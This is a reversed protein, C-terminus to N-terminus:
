SKVMTLSAVSYDYVQPGTYHWDAQGFMRFGLEWLGGRLGRLTEVNYIRERMWHFHATDPGECDWYDTTLVLLGGPRLLTHLAKLFPRVQVVHEVVSICTLIDFAETFRPAAHEATGRIYLLSPHLDVFQTGPLKEDIVTIPTPSLPTLAQWFNSGAGGLDAIAPPPDDPGAQAATAWLWEHIAHLAMAYEWRRIPHQGSLILPDADIRAVTNSLEVFDMPDMVKSTPFPKM